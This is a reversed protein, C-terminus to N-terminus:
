AGASPVVLADRRPARRAVGSFARVREHRASLRAGASLPGTAPVRLAPGVRDTRVSRASPGGPANPSRRRLRRHAHGVRRAGRAPFAREETPGVRSTFIDARPARSASVSDPLGLRTLARPTPCLGCSVPAGSPRSRLRVVTTEPDVRVTKVSSLGGSDTATVEVEYHSDADHDTAAEVDIQARNSYTGAGGVHTHQAHILRVNWDFATGPLTGDTDSASRDRVDPRRPLRTAPVSIVPATNVANLDPPPASGGRGRVGDPRPYFHASPNTNSPAGSSRFPTGDRLGLHLSRTADPREGHRAATSPLRAARGRAPTASFGRLAETGPSYVIRRM